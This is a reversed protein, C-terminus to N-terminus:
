HPLTKQESDYRSIAFTIFVSLVAGDTGLTLDSLAYNTILFDQFVESFNLTSYIFTLSKVNEM